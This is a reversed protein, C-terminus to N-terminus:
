LCVLINRMENSKSSTVTGLTLTMVVFYHLRCILSLRRTPNVRLHGLIAHCISIWNKFLAKFKGM